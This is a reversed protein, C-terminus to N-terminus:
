GGKYMPIKVALLRALNEILKPQIVAIDSATIIGVLKEGDVVPLKKIKNDVMIKTADDIADTPSITIVKKTMIDKAETLALDMGEAVANLINRETLIGVVKDKKMIVISGIHYKGMINAAEKIKVNEEAVVVNRQMVDKVLM